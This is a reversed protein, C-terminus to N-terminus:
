GKTRVVKFCVLETKNKISLVVCQEKPGVNDDPIWSWSEVLAGVNYGVVMSFIILIYWPWDGGIKWM